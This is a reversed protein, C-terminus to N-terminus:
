PTSRQGFANVWSIAAPISALYDKVIEGNESVYVRNSEIDVVITSNNHKFKFWGVEVESFKKTVYVYEM